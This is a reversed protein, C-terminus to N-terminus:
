ARNYCGAWRRSGAIEGDPMCRVKKESVVEILLSLEKTAQPEDMQSSPRRSLRSGHVRSALRCPVHKDTGCEIRAITIILYLYTELRSPSESHIVVAEMGSMPKKEM